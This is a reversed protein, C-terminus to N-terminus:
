EWRSFGVCNTIKQKLFTRYKSVATPQLTKYYKHNSHFGSTYM